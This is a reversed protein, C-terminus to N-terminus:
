SGAPTGPAVGAQRKLADRAKRDRQLRSLFAWRASYDCVGAIAAPALVTVLQHLSKYSAATPPCRM